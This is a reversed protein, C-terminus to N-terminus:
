RFVRVLISKNEKKERKHEMKQNSTSYHAIKTSYHAIKTSYHAIKTSYHATKQSDFLLYGDKLYNSTRPANNTSVGKSSAKRYEPHRNMESITRTVAYNFAQFSQQLDSYISKLGTTHVMSSNFIDKKILSSKLAVSNKFIRARTFSLLQILSQEPTYTAISDPERLVPIKQPYAPNEGKITTIRSPFLIEPLKFSKQIWAFRSYSRKEQVADAPSGTMNIGYIGFTGTTHGPKNRALLSRHVNFIYSLRRSAPKTGPHSDQTFFSSEPKPTKQWSLPSTSRGEPIIKLLDPQFQQGDHQFGTYKNHTLATLYNFIHIVTSELSNINNSKRNRYSRLKIVSQLNKETEVISPAFMKEFIVPRVESIIEPYQRFFNIDGAFFSRESRERGTSRKSKHDGSIGAAGHSSIVPSLIENNSALLPNRILLGKVLLSSWLGKSFLASRFGRSAAHDCAKKLFAQAFVEILPTILRRLPQLEVATSSRFGPRLLPNRIRTIPKLTPQQIYLASFGPTDEKLFASQFVLLNKVFNEPIYKRTITKKTSFKRGTSLTKKIKKDSYPFVVKRQQYTLTQGMVPNEPDTLSEYDLLFATKELFNQILFQVSPPLNMNRIKGFAPLERHRQEAKREIIDQKKRIRLEPLEVGSHKRKPISKVAEESIGPKRKLSYLNFFRSLPELLEGSTKFGTTETGSRRQADERFLFDRDPLQPQEIKRLLEDQIKLSLGNEKLAPILPHTLSEVDFGAKKLINKEYNCLVTKTWKHQKEKAEILNQKLNQKGKTTRIQQKERIIEKKLQEMGSYQKKRCPKVKKIGTEPKQELSEPNFLKKLPVLLIKSDESGKIGTSYKIGRGSRMRLVVRGSINRDPRKLESKRLTGDYAKRFFSSATLLPLLPYASPGTFGPGDSSIDRVVSLRVPLRSQTFFLSSDKM